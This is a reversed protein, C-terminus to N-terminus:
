KNLSMLEEARSHMKLRLSYEYKKFIEKTCEKVEAIDNSNNIVNMRGIFEDLTSMENVEVITAMPYNGLAVLDSSWLEGLDKNEAIISPIFYEGEVLKAKNTVNKNNLLEALCVMSCKYSTAYVDGYYEEINSNTCEPKSYFDCYFCKSKCFPIHIYIGLDKM